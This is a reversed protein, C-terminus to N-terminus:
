LIIIIGDRTIVGFGFPWYKVANLFAQRVDIYPSSLSAAVDQNMKRYDELM